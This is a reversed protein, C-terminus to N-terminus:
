SACTGKGCLHGLNELNSIDVVSGNGELYAEGSSQVYATPSISILHAGCTLVVAGLCYAGDRSVALYVNISM